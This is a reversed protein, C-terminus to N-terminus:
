RKGRKRGRSQFGGQRPRRERNRMEREVRSRGLETRRETSGEPIYKEALGFDLELSQVNVNEIFIRVRDGLKFTEGTERGVLNMREDDYEFFDGSLNKVHLLGEVPIDVLEIFMGFSMVGTILGDFEQGLFQRMYELSKVKAADYEIDEARRERESCHKTWRPLRAELFTFREHSLFKSHSQEPSRMPDDDHDSGHAPPRYKGKMPAGGAALERLFRHVLLDPYRRIPSTFHTYCTSGLGYHGRNEDSYHARAMARLILRRAIFGAEMKAAQDLAVQIADATLNKKAPFKVGLQALVPMLDRLKQLDPDEHVRYVAPVHLNYLHAAVVENAILMCEEVVRHSELRDRRTIGKVEQNEHFLIETEPIDLDLAGRRMRMKTMVERLRYLDELQLQIHGLARALKPEANGDMVQQVEEYILRHASRIIGEHISYGHVHGKEDIDMLCSMTLRDENPRLSCLNNSLKEPLMPVVRDIPYISTAREYAETDVPAGEKVYHTVDAIHVGLRVMGDDLREISLADDFDKATAGDMTFTVLNRFDTRRAIEDAPISEPIAEVEQVVEAPFDPEVGADRILVTIDIGQSDPAGLREKVRGILPETPHTWATIEAVVYDGDQVELDPHPRPVVITRNFREDRPIVSGGSRTPYFAGVITATGRELVEIIQGEPLKSERQGRRTEPPLIKVRVTDGNMADGMRKRTVYVDGAFPVQEGAQPIVFGFGRKSARLVGTFTHRPGSAVYTRTRLLSLHGEVQLERMIRRVSKRETVPIELAKMVDQLRPPRGTHNELFQRIRDKLEIL